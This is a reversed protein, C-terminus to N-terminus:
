VSTHARLFFDEDGTLLSFNGSIMLSTRPEEGTCEPIIGLAFFKTGTVSFRFEDLASVALVLVDFTLWLRGREVLVSSKGGEVGDSKDAREVLAPM